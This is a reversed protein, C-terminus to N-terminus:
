PFSDAVDILMLLFLPLLVKQKKQAFLHSLDNEEEENKPSSTTLNLYSFDFDSKHFARDRGRLSPKQLVSKVISFLLLETM